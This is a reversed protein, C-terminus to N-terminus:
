INADFKAGDWCFFIVKGAVATGATRINGATTWTFAGGPIIKLCMGVGWGPPNTIGTAASTGTDTLFITGTPVIVGAPVTYVTGLVPLFSDTVSGWGGAFCTYKRGSFVFVLPLFLEQSATCAGTPETDSQRNKFASAASISGTTGPTGTSNAFWVTAGNVHARPVGGAGIGKCAAVLVHTSDQVTVVWYLEKDIYLLTAPNNQTGQSLMTSTSALTLVQNNCTTNTVAAGLSTTSLITQGFSLGALAAIAIPLKTFTKM